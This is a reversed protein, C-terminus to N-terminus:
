AEAALNESGSQLSECTCRTFTMEACGELNPLNPPSKIENQLPIELGGLKTGDASARLLSGRPKWGAAWKNVRKKTEADFSPQSGVTYGAM